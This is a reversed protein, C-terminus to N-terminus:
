GTAFTRSVLIRNAFNRYGTKLYDLAHLNYSCYRATAITGSRMECHPQLTFSTLWLYASKNGLPIYGFCGGKMDLIFVAYESRYIEAYIIIERGYFKFLFQLM